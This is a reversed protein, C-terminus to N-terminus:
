RLYGQQYNTQGAGHPVECPGQQSGGHGEFNYESDLISDVM